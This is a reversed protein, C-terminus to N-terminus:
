GKISGVMVGKMFYKQLFPYVCIIPATSVVIVSYRIVQVLSQMEKLVEPDLDSEGAATSTALLIERLFMQLPYKSSDSMYMMASFYSNWHGVAIYMVMVAIIAKSLPLVIWFFFRGIGCGDITAADTLEEPINSLLFSRVVIINYVSVSGLIILALRNNLLGLDRVVMYGPIMGGGFFMTFVFLKMLIRSGPVDKRSFGFGAMMIVSVGFLTGFVTYFITNAYGTLIRKDRFVEIYGALTAGKPYLLLKGSNVYSPDSFSAVLVFYLPYFVIIVFLILFLNCLFDFIRDNWTRRMRVPKKQKIGVARVM